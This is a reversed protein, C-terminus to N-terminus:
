QTVASIDDVTITYPLSWTWWDVSIGGSLYPARSDYNNDTVDIRLVGDYYVLIRNGLFTMQLTHWGTGVAPLSVQQMPVSTGIDTWGRFKWLKLLNSGGPSGTPYVWAGYHAGTAADVRGGIGGGFSGAPIQILGQVTYDTWQPMTSLSAYSYQRAPGTGQMVGGTVTWTGMTAVWPSLPDPSDPPRTFDDSFLVTSTASITFTQANSTGGGPAPNFVTVSATGAVAIDEASIAASLQASSIYTTTRSSGNWQVVSGTIFGSGSITLTFASGGAMTSSPSLGITTPVPNDPNNITFTQANSTGGGPAPNFVTVQATGASAIDAASIAATLQITSVFTTTRDSGNWQVVSGNIFGTGHVTLTFGVGGATSFAPTLSTTTPVPNNVASITFTQANSTGGGPAPNFVTVQSTGATAIDAAPIAATLQNASVFTTTRDVGNWQVVSGTVFGTGNVTLAFAPGGATASAPSLGTTVPVPNNVETITFTQANSTGGGPAPNFVTVQATGATAIDAAPIAATLQTSSVFTTTRSSGNWQVVSGTVFDSGDVTLTFASGGATASSPSLSSIAPVPNDPVTITFTQANSTGGGPAPNFVTMQATGATAIDAASIAATLQTASVYTTTRSSGNWQVVSDSVFNGGNVTLTFAPGGAAALSPSLGTTAPVPNDPSNILYSIRIENFVPSTSPVSTTLELQYQVWRRNAGMFGSGSTSYCDSWSAGALQDVLDATRTRICVNTSGGATADWSLTQWQMDEGGDFASSLLVGSSGYGPLTVVSVDDVTITYPLSWTWWDVSIGGSLYPARSDYNNDTVDIRLVGDYYVLIRNGTFTMQLTHWGTGVAPLSVQQM